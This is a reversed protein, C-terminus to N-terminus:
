RFFFLVLDPTLLESELSQAFQDYMGPVMGPLSNRAQAVFNSLKKHPVRLNSDDNQVINLFADMKLMKLDGITTLGLKELKQSYTAGLSKIMLLPDTEYSTGPIRKDIVWNSGGYKLNRIRNIEANVKRQMEAIAIIQKGSYNLPKANVGRKIGDDNEVM